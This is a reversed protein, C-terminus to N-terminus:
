EQGQASLRRLNVSDATLADKIMEAVVAAGAPTMITGVHDFRSLLRRDVTHPRYLDVLEAPYAPRSNPGVSWEAHLFRIPVQVTNWPNPGSFTDAGDAMLADPLLRVRGDRLEHALYDRLMPDSVDLLPASNAVFFSIYDDLDAWAQTRRAVRDAFIAAAMEPTVEPPASVPFGGDVLILSKVRAASEAAMRMAVFGGMSMGLVHASEIEVHDLIKIMDEVHQALSFPGSIAVSDGRGRLDPAILPLEPVEAHLWNWLRRQSNIGHIALVPETTGALVEYTLRGGRL